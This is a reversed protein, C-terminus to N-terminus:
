EVESPLRIIISGLVLLLSFVCAITRIVHFRNWSTEFKLRQENIESSEAASIDFKDLAENLPVNGFITIGFVGAGYILTAFLMLYFGSSGHEYNYITLTTVPLLLLTGIFSMFFVPNLIARNISQMARLYELDQLRKLGPNVSCSYSYFLGTILASLVATVLLLIKVTIPM